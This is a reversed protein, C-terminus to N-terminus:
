RPLLETGAFKDAILALAIGISLSTMIFYFAGFEAVTTGLVFSCIAATLVGGIILSIVILIIRKALM